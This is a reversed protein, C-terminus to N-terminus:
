QVTLIVNVLQNVNGTDTIELQVNSTGAPTAGATGPPTSSAPAGGCATLISMGCLLVALLMFRAGKKFVKRRGGALAAILTGPMWLVASRIPQFDRRSNQKLKEIAATTQPGTTQIVGTVSVSANAASLTITQPHFSCATGTPLNHCIIQLIGAYGGWSHLVLTISGSAGAQITLTTAGLAASVGAASFSGVGSSPTYWSSGAYQATFSAPLSSPMPVSITAVGSSNLTSTGLVQSGNLFTVIGNPTGSAAAVTATLSITHGRFSGVVLSTTSALTPVVLSTPSTGGAAYNADGSYSASFSYAGPALSSITFTAIGTLGLSASGLNTTGNFFTITGTPTATATATAVSASFIIPQGALIVSPVISLSIQSTAIVRPVIDLAGISPPNPRTYGAYDTLITPLFIGANLDPSSSSLSFNFNDLQSEASLNLGPESAFAPDINMEGAALPNPIYNPRLNYYSNHTRVTWGDNPPMSANVLYFLAPLTVGTPAYLPDAYGMVINNQFVANANPCFDWGGECELGFPTSGTGVFTNDEVTYSGENTFNFIMWGGAARCLSYNGGGAGGPAVSSAPEDGIVYALRNCNALALNNEFIVESGSGVKYAQGENGQSLSNTITLRNMGSHLLDLGDQYNYQWTDHDFYWDGTTSATGLGDGYAGTNQDRCEIYPYNHVVPYEEVCGTFETTSNTLTFGGSVSINGSEWPDDDMNIGAMPMARLHIYNAVVGVGTAGHIGEAALGHIFLDSYNVYSTLASQLIGYAGYNFNANCANTYNGNGGCAAKDTLEFCAVDAFQSDKVNIGTYSGWSEILLTKASDSHCNQYNAGLIRTHQASTGSPIPPMFCNNDGACNTPNYANVAANSDAGINYGSPNPYVIVTDGGSIVWLMQGYTNGDAWLYRLNGAACAQNTMGPNSMAANTQGNCQGATNSASYLTGGDPRVYWTTNGTGGAVVNLAISNGPAVWDAGASSGFVANGVFGCTLTVSGPAIATVDGLRNIVAIASNSSAWNCATQLPQGTNGIANSNIVLGEGLAVTAGVTVKMPLLTGNMQNEFNHMDPTIYGYWTDGPHQAYVNAKDSMGGATVLVWGGNASGAGPDTNWTAVGGSSVTMASSLSSSWIAGGARACNDTSNDSYSCTATFTQSSGSVLVAGVPSIQLSSLTQSFLPATALLIFLFAFRKM